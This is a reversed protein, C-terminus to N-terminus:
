TSQSSTEAKSGPRARAEQLNGGQQQGWCDAALQLNSPAFFEFLNKGAPQPRAQDGLAVKTMKNERKM